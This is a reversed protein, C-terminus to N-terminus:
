PRWTSEPFSAVDSIDGSELTLERFAAWDRYAASEIRGAADRTLRVTEMRGGNGSREVTELRVLGSARRTEYQYTTGDSARYRLTASSDTANAGLLTAGDPPRIVGLGGWLLAPSPLAVGPTVGAPFRYEDEVLAAALVTENRPGFLDLRIRRPADVRVLGRGTVKSGSENLTWNFPIRQARNPTTARVLEAATGAPDAVPAGVPASGQAACGAVLGLSLAWHLALSRARPGIARCGDRMRPSDM